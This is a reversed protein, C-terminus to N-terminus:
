EVRPHQTLRATREGQEDALAPILESTIVLDAPRATVMMPLSPNQRVVATREDTTRARLPASRDTPTV